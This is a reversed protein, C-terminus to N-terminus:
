GRTATTPALGAPPTSGPENWGPQGARRGPRASWITSRILRMGPEAGFSPARTAPISTELYRADVVRRRVRVLTAEGTLRSLFGPGNPGNRACDSMGFFRVQGSALLDELVRQFYDCIEAATARQYFGANPGDRDISDCGM